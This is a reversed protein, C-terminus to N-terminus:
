KESFVNLAVSHVCTCVNIHNPYKYFPWVTSWSALLLRTACVSSVHNLDGTIWRQYSLLIHHTASCFVLSLSDGGGFLAAQPSTILSLKHNLGLTRTRTMLWYRDRACFMQHHSGNVSKIKLIIYGVPNFSLHLPFSLPFTALIASPELHKCRVSLSLINCTLSSYPLSTFHICTHTFALTIHQEQLYSLRLIM